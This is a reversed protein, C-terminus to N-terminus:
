FSYFYKVIQFYKLSLLGAPDAGEGAHGAILAGHQLRGQAVSVEGELSDPSGVDSGSQNARPGLNM